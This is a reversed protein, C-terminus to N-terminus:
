PFFLILLVITSNKLLINYPDHYCCLGIINAKTSLLYFTFQTYVKFIGQMLVLYKTPACSTGFHDEPRT